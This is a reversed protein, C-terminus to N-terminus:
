MSMIINKRKPGTPPAINLKSIKKSLSSSIGKGRPEVGARSYPNIGTTAIYDDIDMYSSGSGGGGTRLIVSGMGSGSIKMGKGSASIANLSTANHHPITVIRITNHVM